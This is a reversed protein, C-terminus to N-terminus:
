LVPLWDRRRRIDVKSRRTARIAVMMTVAARTPVTPLRTLFSLASKLESDWCVDVMSLVVSFSFDM